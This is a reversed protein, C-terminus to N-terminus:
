CHTLRSHFPRAPQKQTLASCLAHSYGAGNITAQRGDFVDLTFLHCSRPSMKWSSKRGRGEGPSRPRRQLGCVQPDRPLTHSM